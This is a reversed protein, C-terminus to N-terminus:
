EMLGENGSLAKMPNSEVAPHIHGAFASLILETLRYASTHVERREGAAGEDVLAHECRHLKPFKEGIKNIGADLRGEGKDM